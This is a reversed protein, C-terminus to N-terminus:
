TNYRCKSAEISSHKRFVTGEAVQTIHSLNITNMLRTYVSPVTKMFGSSVIESM